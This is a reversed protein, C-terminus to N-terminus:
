LGSDEEEEEEEEEEEQRTPAAQPAWEAPIAFGPGPPGAWDTATLGQPAIKGDESGDATILSGAGFGGGTCTGEKTQVDARPQSSRMWPQVTAWMQVQM